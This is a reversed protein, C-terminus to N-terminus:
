TRPTPPERSHFQLTFWDLDRTLRMVLALVAFLGLAGLLLAYDELRLVVFLYGYLATLCALMVGAWRLGGLISRCYAAILGVTAAAAVAYAPAFGLHEALALLLVYFLCLAFGVLLYQVAHLRAPSLLELLFFTAFTLAIFLAAYKVSRETQQYANAPLVLSVKFASRELASAEVDTDRWVQPYDRGYYPVKWSATFGTEGIRREGPLFAGTFGPAPWPSELEVRTEMGAPQFRLDGSGRLALEFSFPM